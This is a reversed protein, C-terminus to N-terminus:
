VRVRPGLDLTRLQVCGTSLGLGVDPDLARRRPGFDNEEEEDKIEIDRGKEGCNINREEQREGIRVKGRMRVRDRVRMRVRVVVEVVLRVRVRMRVRDRLRMRVRVTVMVMVM